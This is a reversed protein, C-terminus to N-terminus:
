GTPGVTFLHSTQPPPESLEDAQLQFRHDTDTQREDHQRTHEEWSPVTLLEVLVNASKGDRLLAWQTAGTRLRSLRVNTMAPLFQQEREPAITYTTRV